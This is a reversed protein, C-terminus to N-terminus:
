KNKNSVKVKYHIKDKQGDECTVESTHKQVTAGNGSYHGTFTVTDDFAGVEVELHTDSEYVTGSNSIVIKFKGDKEDWDTYTIYSSYIITVSDTSCVNSATTQCLDVVDCEANWVPESPVPKDAHVHTMSTGIMISMAIVAVFVLSPKVM